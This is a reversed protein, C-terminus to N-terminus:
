NTKVLQYGNDKFELHYIMNKRELVMKWKHLKAHEFLEYSPNFAIPNQALELMVIDSATDGVAVSGKYILNNQKIIDKLTENKKHHGVINERGTYKGNVVELETGHYVDFGYQPAFHKLIEINSGSIAIICHTAKLEKILQRTYVYTQLHYDMTAKAILDIQKTTKGKIAILLAKVTDAIYDEYAHLSARNKWHNYSETYIDRTQPSFLGADIANRVFKVMLSSRFLTGDIDFAAFPKKM